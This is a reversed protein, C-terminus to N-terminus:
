RCQGGKSPRTRHWREGGDKSTHPWGVGKGVRRVELRGKTAGVKHRALMKQTGRPGHGMSWQGRCRGNASGCSSRRAPSHYGTRRLGTKCLTLLPRGPQRSTRKRCAGTWCEAPDREAQGTAKSPVAKPVARRGRCGSFSRNRLQKGAAQVNAQRCMLRGTVPVINASSAAIVALRAVVAALSAVPRSALSQGPPIRVWQVDRRLKM